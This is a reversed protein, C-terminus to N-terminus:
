KSLSLILPFDNLRAWLFIADNFSPLCFPHFTSRNHQWPNVDVFSFKARDVQIQPIIFCKSVHSDARADFTVFVFKMLVTIAGNYLYNHSGLGEPSDAHLSSVILSIPENLSDGANRSLM